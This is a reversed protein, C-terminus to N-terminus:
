NRHNKKVNKQKLNAYIPVQDLQSHNLSDEENSDRKEGRGPVM